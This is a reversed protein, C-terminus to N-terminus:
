AKIGTLAVGAVFRKQLIIFLLILPTTALMSAAMLLHNRTFYQGVLTAIGVSLVRISDRSTMILPWMLDNWAWNVTFIAFAIFAATSLPLFIRWYIGFYSTGDIIAAEELEGPVTLFFQRLFFTGYASYFHPIILAKFTDIWGFRSLLIFTPIMTMQSPIMMVSLLFIFLFGRGPFKIRAFGFAAMSCFLAQIVTISVTVIITNVYYRAFNLKGLVERFNEIQLKKPFWQIPIAVTEQFTKFATMVMWVYPLIMIFAGISLIAYTTFLPGSKSVKTNTM